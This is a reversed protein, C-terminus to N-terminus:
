IKINVQTVDHKIHINYYIIFLKTNKNYLIVYFKILFKDSTYIKNIYLFYKINIYLKQVM